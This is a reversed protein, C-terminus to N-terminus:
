WLKLNCRANLMDFYTYEIFMCDTITQHLYLVEFMFSRWYHIFIGLFAIFDFFTGYSATVDPIKVYWYQNSEYDTFTQHLYLLESMFFEIFDFFTGYSEIVDSKDNDTYFIKIWWIYLKHPSPYLVKFSYEYCFSQIVTPRFFYLRMHAKTPERKSWDVRGM